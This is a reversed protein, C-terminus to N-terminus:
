YRPHMADRPLLWEFLWSSFMLSCRQTCCLIRGVTVSTGYVRDTVRDVCQHARGPHSFSDLNRKPQPSEPRLSGHCIPASPPWSQEPSMKSPINKYLGLTVYGGLNGRLSRARGRCVSEVCHVAAIRDRAAM